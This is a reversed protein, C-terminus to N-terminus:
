KKMREINYVNKNNQIHNIFKDLQTKSSVLVELEYITPNNDKITKMNKLTINHNNMANLITILNKNGSVVEMRLCSIFSGRHELNWDVDIMKDELLLANHCSKRHVVIAKGSAVYGVINDELIPLCCPAFSVKIDEIGAVIVSKSTNKKVNSNIIIKENDLNDEKLIKERYKNFILTPTNNSNLSILLEDFDKVKCLKCLKKINKDLYFNKLEVNNEKLVKELIDRNRTLIEEKSIKFFYNKIKNRAQSTKVINIWEMKPASNSTTNIQIIDGTNLECDFSVIAGNVIASTMMHGIDTHIKYAFDIPTAGKPLELIEGNPTYVYISVETLVEDKINNIFEMNDITDNDLEIISKFFQLKLESQDIVVKKKGEKYSWHSAIGDEAIQDMDATRIQIEFLHNNCGFVTTHLSQYRNTKPQSIYDKFRNSVLKFKSHILGLCVYCDSVDDVIIRLALLDYIDSFRKGKELKKHISYISKARGKITHNIGNDTLIKTVSEIMSEVNDEREKKKASLKEAISYFKDPESFRLSLDELESKINYIGLRHALPTYIELTEKSVRVQKEVSCVGLTRMNHLRDCLKIIIIRVDEVLSVLLNRQYNALQESKNSFKIQEIKSLNNILNSVDKGFASEVEEITVDTDEVVDHLLGAIICNSDFGLSALILAVNLPHTVYPEGSQRFQGEHNFAAFDYAEKILKLDEEKTIYDLHPLLESYELIGKKDM